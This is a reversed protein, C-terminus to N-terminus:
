IYLSASRFPSLYIRQDQGKWWLPLNRRNRGRICYKGSQWRYWLQDAGATRDCNGAEDPKRRCWLYVSHSKWGARNEKDTKRKWVPLLDRSWEWRNRIFYAWVSRLLLNQSSWRKKQNRDQRRPFYTRHLYTRCIQWRGGREAPDSQRSWWLQKGGSCNGNPQCCDAYM